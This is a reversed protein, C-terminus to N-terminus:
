KTKIWTEAEAVADNGDFLKTTPDDNRIVRNRKEDSVRVTKTTPTERVPRCLMLWGSKTALIM